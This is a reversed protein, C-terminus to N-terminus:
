YIEILALEQLQRVKETERGAAEAARLRAQTEEITLDINKQKIEFATKYIEKIHDPIEPINQVSGNEMILKKKLDDFAEDEAKEDDMQQPTKRFISDYNDRYANTVVGTQISDGTIDNTAAM